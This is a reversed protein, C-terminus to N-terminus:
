EVRIVLDAWAEQTGDSEMYLGVQGERVPANDFVSAETSNVYAVLHSGIAVVNVRAIVVELSNSRPLALPRPDVPDGWREPAYPSDEPDGQRIQWYASGGHAPDIVFAIADNPNAARVLIGVRSPLEYYRLNAEVLVDQWDGVCLSFADRDNNASPWYTCRSPGVIWDGVENGWSELQRLCAQDPPATSDFFPGFVKPSTTSTPRASQRPEFTPATMAPETPPRFAGCGTLFLLVVLVLQKACRQM